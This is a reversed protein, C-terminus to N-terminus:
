VIEKTLILTPLLIEVMDQLTDNFDPDIIAQDEFIDSASNLLVKTLAAEFEDHLAQANEPDEIFDKCLLKLARQSFHM